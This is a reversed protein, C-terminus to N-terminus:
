DKEPWKEPWDAPRKRYSGGWWSCDVCKTEAWGYIPETPTKYGMTRVPLLGQKWANYWQEMDVSPSDYEVSEKYKFFFVGQFDIYETFLRTKGVNVHGIVMEEPNDECYINGAMQSPVPSDLSGTNESNNLINMWYQYSERSLSQISIRARYHFNTKTSTNLITEYKQNVIRNSSLDETTALMIDRSTYSEWCYYTSPHGEDFPLIQGYVESPIKEMAGNSLIKQIEKDSKTPRVYYYDAEIPAHYQWDENYSWRFYRSDDDAHFSIRMDMSKRDNAVTYSVSDIVPPLHVGDWKSFYKKGTDNNVIALRYRCDDPAERLDIDFKEIRGGPQESHYRTGDEGEVWVTADPRAVSSFDELSMAYSLSFTSIDGINIDGEVVFIDHASKLEAEFPYVCGATLSALAMALIINKAKM